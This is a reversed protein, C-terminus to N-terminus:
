CIGPCVTNAPSCVQQVVDQVPWVEAFTQLIGEEFLGCGSTQAIGALAQAIAALLQAQQDATAQLYASGLAEATANFDDASATAIAIAAIAAADQGPDPCTTQAISIAVAM